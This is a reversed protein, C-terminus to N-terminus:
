IGTLETMIDNLASIAMTIKDEEIPIVNGGVRKAMVLKCLGDITDELKPILLRYKKVSTSTVLKLGLALDVSEEDGYSMAIKILNSKDVIMRITSASKELKKQDSPTAIESRTQDESQTATPTASFKYVGSSRATEVAQKAEDNTLGCHMLITIAKVKGVNQLSTSPLGSVGNDSVNFSQKDPTSAITVTIAATKNIPNETQYSDGLWIIKAFKPVYIEDGEISIEKVSDTIHIRKSDYEYGDKISLIHDSGNKAEVIVEFPGYVIGNMMIGLAQGKDGVSRSLDDVIEGLVGREAISFIRDGAPAAFITMYVPRKSRTSLFIHGKKITPQKIDRLEYINGRVLGGIGDALNVTRPLDANFNFQNPPLETFATKYLVDRMISTTYGYHLVEATKEEGFRVITEGLSLHEDPKGFHNLIIDTKNKSIELSAIKECGYPDFGAHKLMATNQVNSSLSLLIEPFKDALEEALKLLAPDKEIDEVTIDTMQVAAFKKMQVFDNKNIQKFPWGSSTLRKTSDRTLYGYTNGKIYVDLPNLTFKNIVFPIRFINNLMTIYGIAHGKVKDLHNFTVKDIFNALEPYKKMLISNITEPWAASNESLRVKQETPFLEPSFAEKIM